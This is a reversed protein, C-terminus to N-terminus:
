WEKEEAFDKERSRLKYYEAEKQKVWGKKKKKGM